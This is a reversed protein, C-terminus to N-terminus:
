DHMYIHIVTKYCKRERQSNSDSLLPSVHSLIIELCLKKSVSLGIGDASISLICALFGMSKDSGDELGADLFGM